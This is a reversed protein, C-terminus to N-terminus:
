RKVLIMELRGDDDYEATLHTVAPDHERLLKLLIRCFMQERLSIQPDLEESSTATRKVVVGKRKAKRAALALAQIEAVREVPM